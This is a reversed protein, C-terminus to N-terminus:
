KRSAIETKKLFQFLAQIGDRTTLLLKLSLESVSLKEKIKSYEAQYKSCSLLLHAPSQISNNDCDCRDSNYDPLRKLYSKFYGHGLKLQIYSSWIIRSTKLKLNLPKWAPQIALNQYKAGKKASNYYNYWSQLLAKKVSKKLYTLSIDTEKSCDIIYSNYQSSGASAAIKAAKDAQENGYIGVHGPVWCIHLQINKTLLFEAEKQLKYSIEQGSNKSNKCIRQVVAQSDSFIWINKVTDSTNILSKAQQLSKFIAFLEIDFVEATKNLHWYYLQQNEISYSIYAAAGAYSDQKSSDSYIIINESYNQQLQIIKKRHNATAIIKSDSDIETLIASKQWPL